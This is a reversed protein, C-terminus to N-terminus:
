DVLNNILLILKDAILSILYVCESDLTCVYDRCCLKFEKFYEHNATEGEAYDTSTLIFFKVNLKELLVMFYLLRCCLKLFASAKLNSFHEGRHGMVLLNLVTDFNIYVM